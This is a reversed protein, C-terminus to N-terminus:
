PSFRGVKTNDIFFTLLCANEIYAHECKKCYLTYFNIRISKIVNYQKQYFTFTILLM